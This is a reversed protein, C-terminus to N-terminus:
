STVGLQRIPTELSSLPSPGLTGKSAQFAPSYQSFEIGMGIRSEEMCYGQGRKVWRVTGVVKAWQGHLDIQLRVPTGPRLPRPTCVFTGNADIDHTFGHIPGPEMRM